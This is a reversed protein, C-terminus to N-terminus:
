TFVTETRWYTDVFSNDLLHNTGDKIWHWSKVTAAVSIVFHRLTIQKCVKELEREGV